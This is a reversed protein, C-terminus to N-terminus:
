SSFTNKGKVTINSGEALLISIPKERNLFEFNLGYNTQFDIHSSYEIVEHQLWRPHTVEYENTKKESVKAYGWYHETIFEAESGEEIVSPQKNAIVKIFQWGGSLRWQYEVSIFSSDGSWLHKMPLTQYNEKYVTNAVFTIAPKPVIEKIFVVGRRWQGDVKRRVYFRLNVEEFTTHYPIRIGLLRTNVFLFGVVSVYCKGNWLDLETGFPLYKELLSPPMEYNVLILNKWEATLFPM